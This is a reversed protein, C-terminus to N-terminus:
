HDLYIVKSKQRNLEERMVTALNIMQACPVASDTAGLFNKPTLKSDYHCAILLRRPAKLNDFKITDSYFLGVNPPIYRCILQCKNCTNFWCLDNVIIKAILGAKWFCLNSVSTLKLCIFNILINNHESNSKFNSVSINMEWKNHECTNNLFNYNQTFAKTM